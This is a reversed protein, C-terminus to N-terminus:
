SLADYVVMVIRNNPGVEVLHNGVRVWRSNEGYTELEGLAEPLPEMAHSPLTEGPKIEDQLAAPIEDPDEYVVADSYTQQVADVVDRKVEFKETAVPDFIVVTEASAAGAIGLGAALASTLMLRKM